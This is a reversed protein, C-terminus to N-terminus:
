QYVPPERETAQTTSGAELKAVREALEDTRKEARFIILVIRRYYARILSYLARCNNFLLQEREDRGDTIQASHYQYPLKGGQWYKKAFEERTLKRSSFSTDKRM